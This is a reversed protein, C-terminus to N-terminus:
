DHLLGSRRPHGRILMSPCGGAQCGDLVGGFDASERLIRAPM